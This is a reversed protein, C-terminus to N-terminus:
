KPLLQNNMPIAGYFQLLQFNGDGAVNGPLFPFLYLLWGMSIISFSQLWSIGKARGIINKAISYQILVQFMKEFLITLGIVELIVEVLLLKDVARNRYDIVEWITVVALLAAFTFCLYGNLYRGALLPTKLLWYALGLLPLYLLFYINDVTVKQLDLVLWLSIGVIFLQTLKKIRM